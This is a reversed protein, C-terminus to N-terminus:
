AVKLFPKLGINLELGHEHRYLLAMQDVFVAGLV